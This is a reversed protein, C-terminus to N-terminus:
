APDLHLTPDNHGTLPSQRWICYEGEFMTIFYQPEMTNKQIEWSDVIIIVRIKQLPELNERLVPRRESRIQDQTRSLPNLRWAM